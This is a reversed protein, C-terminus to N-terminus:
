IIKQYKKKIDNHSIIRGEEADKLGQEISQRVYIQYMIDDWGADDPLNKILGEVERKLERKQM